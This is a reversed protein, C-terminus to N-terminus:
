GGPMPGVNEARMARLASAAPACFVTSEIAHSVQRARAPAQMTPVFGLMTHVPVFQCLRLGHVLHFPPPGPSVGLLDCPTSVVGPSQLQRM